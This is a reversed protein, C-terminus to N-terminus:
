FEYFLFFRSYYISVAGFEICVNEKQPTKINGKHLINKNFAGGM